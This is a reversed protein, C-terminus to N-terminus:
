YYKSSGTSTNNSVVATSPTFGVDSIVALQVPLEEKKNRKMKRSPCCICKGLFLYALGSLAAVGGISGGVASAIIVTNDDKSPAVSHYQSKSQPNSTISSNEFIANIIVLSNSIADSVFISGESTTTVTQAFIIAPDTINYINTGTSNYVKVNSRDPIYFFDMPPLTYILFM